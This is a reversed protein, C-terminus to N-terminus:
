SKKVVFPSMDIELLLKESSLIMTILASLGKGSVDITENGKKKEFIANKVRGKEQLERLRVCELSNDDLSFIKRCSRALGYSQQFEYIELKM